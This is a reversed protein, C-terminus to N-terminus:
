EAGQKPLRARMQALHEEAPIGIQRALAEGEQISEDIAAQHDYYYSLAAYIQAFTLDYEDAIWEIPSANLVYLAVIDEVTVRGGVLTPKGEILEIYNIPVVAM